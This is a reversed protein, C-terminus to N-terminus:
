KIEKVPINILFTLGNKINAVDITGEFEDEIFYKCLYLGLGNGIKKTTFYPEFIKNLNQLIKIGGANDSIKIQLINDKINTELIVKKNEKNLDLDLFAEFSNNLINIIIHEFIRKSGKVKLKEKELIEDFKIIYDINYQKFLPNMLKFIFNFTTYDIINDSSDSFFSQYDDITNSLYTITRNLDSYIADFEKKTLTDDKYLDNLYDVIVKLSSIPQKWQHTISKLLKYLEDYGSILEKKNTREKTLDNIFIIYFPTNDKHIKVSAPFVIDDSKKLAVNIYEKKSKLLTEFNSSLFDKQIFDPNDIKFVEKFKKNLYVIKFDYTFKIIATLSENLILEKELNQIELKKQTKKFWKYRSYVLVFLSALIVFFLIKLIYELTYKSLNKYNGLRFKKFIDDVEKYSEPLNWHSYEGIQAATDTNKIKSLAKFVKNVIKNDTHKAVAFAWEPYLRTSSYIKNDILNADILKINEIQRPNNLKIKELIGTKIVGFEYKQESIAKIVAIQTGLFDVNKDKLPDIGNDFLKNYGILWGGFGYPAVAVIKKNKIDELNKITSNKYTIFVSGFKSMEFLNSMTLIRYIGNSIELQIYIAPQTILFDIKKKDLLNKIKKHNIPAIPLIKFNADPIEKNLFDVTPKWRKITYEESIISNIYIVYDKNAYLNTYFLVFYLLLLKFFM